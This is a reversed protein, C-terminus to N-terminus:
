RVQLSDPHGACQAEDEAYAQPPKGAFNAKIKGSATTRFRKRAGSKTKMKPM